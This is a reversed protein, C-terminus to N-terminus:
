TVAALVVVMSKLVYPGATASSRSHTIPKRSFGANRLSPFMVLRRVREAKIPIMATPAVKTMVAPPISRDTPEIAATIAPTIIM